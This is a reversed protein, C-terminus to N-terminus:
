SRRRRRGVGALGGLAAIGGGPVALATSNFQVNQFDMYRGFSSTYIYLRFDVFGSLGTHGGIDFAAHQLGESTGAPTQNSYLDSTYGDLSSRVFWGRTGTTGGRSWDLEISRIDMSSNATLTFEVYWSNSVADNADAGDISSGPGTKLVQPSTTGSWSDTGVSYQGLGSGPTVSANSLVSSDFTTYAFGNSGDNNNNFPYKVLVSASAGASCALIAAAAALIPNIIHNVTHNMPSVRRRPSPDRNM